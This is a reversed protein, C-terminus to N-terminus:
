IVSEISSRLICKQQPREPPSRPWGPAALRTSASASLHRSDGVRLWWLLIIHSILVIIRKHYKMNFGDNNGEKVILFEFIMSFM